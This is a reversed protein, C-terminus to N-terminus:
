VAGLWPAGNVEDGLMVLHRHRSRGLLARLLRGAHVALCPVLWATAHGLRSQGLLARLLLSLSSAAHLRKM